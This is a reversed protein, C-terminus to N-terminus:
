NKEGLEDFVMSGTKVPEFRGRRYKWTGGPNVLKAKSIRYQDECASLILDHDESVNARLAIQRGLMPRFPFRTRVHLCPLSPTLDHLVIGHEENHFSFVSALGFKGSTGGEQFLVINRGWKSKENAKASSFRLGDYSAMWPRGLWVQNPGDDEMRYIALMNVSKKSREAFKWEANFGVLVFHLGEQSIVSYTVNRSRPADSLEAERRLQRIPFVHSLFREIREQEHFPISLTAGDVQSTIFNFEVHQSATKHKSARIPTAIITVLAFVFLMPVIMGIQRFMKTNKMDILRKRSEPM